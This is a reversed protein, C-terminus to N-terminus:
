NWGNFPNCVYSNTAGKKIRAFSCVRLNERGLIKWMLQGYNVILAMLNCLFTCIFFARHFSLSFLCKACLTSSLSYYFSSLLFSDRKIWVQNSLNCCKKRREGIEVRMTKYFALSESCKKKAVPAAVAAIAVEIHRCMIRSQEQACRSLHLWQNTVTLWLFLFFIFFSRSKRGNMWRWKTACTPYRAREGDFIILRCFADRSM